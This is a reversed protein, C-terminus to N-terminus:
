EQYSDYLHTITLKDEIEQKSLRVPLQCAIARSENPPIDFFNDSFVIDIGTLKVEVFRALNTASVCITLDVGDVTIEHSLDPNTLRLHKNPVFTVIQTSILREAEYLEAIFVTDFKEDNSLSVSKTKVPVSQDAAISVPFQGKEKVEGVTTTIQWRVEGRWERQLDSTMYIEVVDDHDYLSLLVPSYFKKAAYHLAKWRGFYDISSWSAVPWCDNLQWYLIGSTRNKNRRWHEVGYRIGEAQLVQSAYMLKAFSSPIRYNDAMQNIILRNGSKNKQHLEMVYSTLNQEEKSAYFNITEMPPFAQFGFESM